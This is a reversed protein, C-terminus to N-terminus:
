DKLRRESRRFRSFGGLNEGRVLKPSLKRLSCLLKDNIVVLLNFNNVGFWKTAVRFRFRSQTFRIWVGPLDVNMLIVMRRFIRRKFIRSFGHHMTGLQHHFQGMLSTGEDSQHTHVQQSNATQQPTPKHPLPSPSKNPISLHTSGSKPLSRNHDIIM